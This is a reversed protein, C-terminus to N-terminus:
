MTLAMSLITIHIVFTKFNKDLVVIAFEKKDILEIKRTIPEAKFTM